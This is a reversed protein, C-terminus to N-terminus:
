DSRRMATLEGNKVWSAGEDFSLSSEWSFASESIDFFRIRNKVKNGDPGVGTAQLVMAGEEELGYWELMAASPQHAALGAFEWRRTQPSYTRLTVYSSIEAGTPAVAKFDDIIMRGGNISKASWIARYPMANGDPGYRVADVDWDGMLFDFQHHAESSVGSLYDQIAPPVPAKKMGNKEMVNVGQLDEALLRASFLVLMLLVLLYGIKQRM